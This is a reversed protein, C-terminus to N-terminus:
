NIYMSYRVNVSSYFIIIISYVNYLEDKKSNPIKAQPHTFTKNYFELAKSWLIQKFRPWLNM